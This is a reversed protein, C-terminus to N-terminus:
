KGSKKTNDFTNFVHSAYGKIRGNAKTASTLSMITMHGGPHRLPSYDNSLGRHISAEGEETQVAVSM